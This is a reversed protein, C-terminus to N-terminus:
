NYINLKLFEPLSGKIFQIRTLFKSVTQEM